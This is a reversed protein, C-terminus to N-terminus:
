QYSILHPNEKVTELFYDICLAPLFRTLFNLVLGTKMYVGSKKSNQVQKVDKRFVKLLNSSLKQM